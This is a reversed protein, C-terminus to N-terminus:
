ALFRSLTGAVSRAIGEWALQAACESCFPIEEIITTHHSCLNAACGSCKSSCDVCVYHAEIGEEIQQRCLLAPKAQHGCALFGVDLADVTHLVGNRIFTAHTENRLIGDSLETKARVVKQTLRSAGMTQGYMKLFDEKTM